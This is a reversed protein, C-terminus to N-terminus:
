KRRLWGGPFQTVPHMGELEVDVEWEDSHLMMWADVADAPSGDYHKRESMPMHRLLTDEVVMYGGPLVVDAYAEMEQMVHSGSHDSDLVLLPTYNMMWAHVDAIIADDLTSGQVWHVAGGCEERVDPEVDDNVDITVVWSVREAFWRASKGSFTGLEVVIDPHTAEILTDYRELDEWVKVCGEAHQRSSAKLSAELDFTHM